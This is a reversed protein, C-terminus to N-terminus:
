KNNSATKFLQSFTQLSKFDKQHHENQPLDRRSLIAFAELWNFHFNDNIFIRWDQYIIKIAHCHYIADWHFTASIGMLFKAFNAFDNILFNFSSFYYFSMLIISSLGQFVNWNIILFIIKHCRCNIFAASKLSWLLRSFFIGWTNFFKEVSEVSKKM